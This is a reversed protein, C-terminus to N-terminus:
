PRGRQAARHRSRFNRNADVSATSKKMRDRLMRIGINVFPRLPEPALLKTVENVAADVNLEEGPADEIRPLSEDDLIEQLTDYAFSPDLVRVNGNADRIAITGDADRQLLVVATKPTTV